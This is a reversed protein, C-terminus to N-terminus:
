VKIQGLSPTLNIRSASPVSGELNNKEKQIEFEVVIKDIEDDVKNRAIGPFLNMFGVISRLYEFSIQQQVSSSSQGARWLIIFSDNKENKQAITTLLRAVEKIGKSDFTISEDDATIDVVKYAQAWVHRTALSVDIPIFDPNPHMVIAGKLEPNNKFVSLVSLFAPHSMLQAKLSNLEQILM